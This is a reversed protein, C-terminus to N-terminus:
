LEATDEPDEGPSDWGITFKREQVLVWIVGSRPVRELQVRAMHSLAIDADICFIVVLSDRDPHGLDTITAKESVQSEGAVAIVAEATRDGTEMGVILKKSSPLHTVDGFSRVLVTHRGRGNARQYAVVDECVRRIEAPYASMGVQALYFVDDFCRKDGEAGPLTPRDPSHLITTRAPMPAATGLYWRLQKFPKGHM